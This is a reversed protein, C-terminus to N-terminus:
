HGLLSHACVQKVCSLGGDVFLHVIQSSSVTPTCRRWSYELYHISINCSSCNCKLLLLDADIPYLLKVGFSM